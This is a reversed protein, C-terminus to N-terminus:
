HAKYGCFRRSSRRFQTWTTMADWVVARPSITLVIDWTPVSHLGKAYKKDVHLFPMPAWPGGGRGKVWPRWGGMVTHLCRGRWCFTQWCVNRGTHPPPASNICLPNYGAAALSYLDSFRPLVSFRTAFHLSSTYGSSTSSIKAGSELASSGCVSHAACGIFM